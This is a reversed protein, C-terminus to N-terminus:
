KRPNKFEITEIPSLGLEAAFDEGLKVADPNCVADVSHADCGIVIQNGVEAAIKFFEKRPYARHDSLGLLNAELPIGLEKVERCLRTMHSRYIESDGKFNILDPHAFYTYKGTKLGELTQNIYAELIDERDTPAGSYIGDYENGIFHQGLILYDYDYPAVTELFLEFLEPYYEAEYGIYIQIDNEYEKKLNKLVTVYEEIQDLRMRIGSHYGNTFPYPSHDSFGLIKLGREIAKEVYERETGSAHGCRTTHTHYNAIM